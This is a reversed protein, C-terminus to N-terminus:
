FNKLFLFLAPLYDVLSIRLAKLSKTIHYEVGKESINLRKQIEKNTLGQYRSMIFVERTQPPLENLTNNVITLIEETFLEEPNLARLSNINLNAEILKWQQTETEIRYRNRTKEIYNLAKNKVVTVLYAKLNSESGLLERKEWLTVFAEQVVNEAVYPDYIYSSAFKLLMSYYQYFIERFAKEEGDILRKTINEVMLAKQYHLLILINQSLFGMSLSLSFGSNGIKYDPM